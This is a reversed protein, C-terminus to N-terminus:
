NKVVITVGNQLILAQSVLIAPRAIIHTSMDLKQEKSKIPKKPIQKELAKIAMDVLEDMKDNELWLDDLNWKPFNKIIEITENETM